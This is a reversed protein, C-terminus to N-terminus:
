ITNLDGVLNISRGDFHSKLGNEVTNKTREVKKRFFSIVPRTRRAEEVLRLRETSLTDIGRECKEHKRRLREFDNIMTNLGIGGRSIVLLQKLSPDDRLSSVVARVNKIWGSIDAASGKSRLMSASSNKGDAIQLLERLSGVQGVDSSEEVEAQRQLLFCELELMDGLLAHREEQTMLPASGQTKVDAGSDVVETTEFEGGWDIEVANESTDDGTGEWDIEVGDLTSPADEGIDPTVNVDWDVGMEAAVSAMEAATDEAEVGVVSEMMSSADFEIEAAVDKAGGNAEQEDALETAMLKVLCSLRDTHEGDEQSHVFSAFAFYYDCAEKIATDKCCAHVNRLLVGLDGVRDELRSKFDLDLAQMAREHKAKEEEEPPTILDYALCKSLLENRTRYSQRRLDDVRRDIEAVRKESKDMAARLSVVEYKCDQVLARAGEAIFLNNKRFDRVVKDWAALVPDSYYGLFTKSATCGGDDAAGAKRRDDDKEAGEILAELIKNADGYLTHEVCTSRGTPDSLTSLSCADVIQKVRGYRSLLRENDALLLQLAAELQNRVRRLDKLWAKGDRGRVVQRQSIWDPLTGYPVDLALVDGPM